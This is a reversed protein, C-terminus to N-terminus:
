STSTYSVFFHYKDYEHLPGITPDGNKFRTVISPKMSNKLKKKKALKKEKKCRDCDKKLINYVTHEKLLIRSPAYFPANPYKLERNGHFRCLEMSDNEDEEEEEEDSVVEDVLNLKKLRSQLFGDDDDHVLQLKKEPQVPNHSKCSGLRYGVKYEGKGTM